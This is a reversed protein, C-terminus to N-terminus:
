PQRLVPLGGDAPIRPPRSHRRERRPSQVPRCAPMDIPTTRRISTCITGACTAPSRGQRAAARLDRDSRVAPGHRAESPELLRGGRASTRGGQATEKEVISALTVLQRVTLGRAEAAARLRPRSCRSSGSSWPASPARRRPGGPCRTPTRSCTGRSIAARVSRAAQIASADNAASIFTSAPGFGRAEFIAAMEAITLGEPFTVSLVISM